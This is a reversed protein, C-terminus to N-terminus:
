DSGRRRNAKALGPPQWPDGGTIDTGPPVADDIADLTDADLRV